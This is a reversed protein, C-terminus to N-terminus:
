KGVAGPMKPPAVAMFFLSRELMEGAILALASLAVLVLDLASARPAAGFGLRGLLLAPVLLGGVIGTAFRLQTLPALAGQMLLASRKLDTSEPDRLHLFLSAEDLLKAATALMLGVYLGGLMTGSVSAGAFALTTL